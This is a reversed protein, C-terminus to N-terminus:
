YALKLELLRCVTDLDEERAVEFSVSRGEAYATADLLAGLVAPPLGASKAARAAREGYVFTLRFRGEKPMMYFLTRKGLKVPYVWGAARTYFKWEGQGKPLAAVADWLPASGGLAARLQEGDPVHLKDPFFSEAM